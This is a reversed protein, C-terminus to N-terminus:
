RLLSGGGDVPLVVGTIWAADDGCLFVAARAVDEVSGLRGGFPPSAPPPHHHDLKPESHRSGDADDYDHDYDDDEAESVVDAVDDRPQPQVSTQHSRRGHANVNVTATGTGPEMAGATATGTSPTATSSGTGTGATGTSPGMGMGADVFGPCLANCLIADAAYDLAIQRTLMVAAAQGACSGPSGTGVGVGVAGMSGVGQHLLLLSAVNVIWGRARAYRRPQGDLMQRVAYKCALFPGRAHVALARDFDEDKTEHCRLPRTSVNAATAASASANTVLIDVRRYKSVCARIALDMDRARTPDAKHYTAEGGQHRIREHTGPQDRATTSTTPTSAHIGHGHGQDKAQGQGQGQSQRPPTPSVDICFLSCGQAALALAIAAGIASSSGTVIAVRGQLPRAPAPPPPPTGLSPTSPSTM